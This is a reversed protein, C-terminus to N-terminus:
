QAITLNIGVAQTTTTGSAARGYYRLHAHVRDSGLLDTSLPDGFRDNNDREADRPDAFGSDSSSGSAGGFGTLVPAGGSATGGGRPPSGGGGGGGGIALSIPLKPLSVPLGGPAARTALAASFALLCFFKAAVSPLTCPSTPM